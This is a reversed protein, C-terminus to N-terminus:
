QGSQELAKTQRVMDLFAARHGFPDRARTADAIQLVLDHSSLGKHRSDRLLLGWAAVSSAFLFDDSAELLTRGDDHVPYEFLRSADADPQKYRIRLTMMEGSTSSPNLERPSQYKLAEDINAASDAGVPVIEYLATVTQGAGIEGADKTDDHFDQDAMVRNEYGILRYREVVAPNFEVQLKVDKAVPVLTGALQESLVKRAEPVSDIYAYTGNGSGTIKELLDDNLNGVGYGLVTLFVGEDRRKEVMEVLAATSTVGVNFDGDTCLIVRNIGGPLFNEKAVNYALTIGAGGNTSGGAQLRGIADRLATKDACSTSPLVLGESGAYVVMAARDRADLGDAILELSEQVLPLDDRMSGSVDVLFVLNCAPRQEAAVTRAKLGVRALRHADEWPCDAVEVTVSFPVEGDPEPYDYDFYNLLEEIRVVGAPPKNGAQLYRRVNSYSATDVDISFTSLPRHWPSLFENEIIRDYRERSIPPPSPQALSFNSGDLETFVFKVAGTNGPDTAVYDALNFASVFRYVNQDKPGTYYDFEQAGIPAFSSEAHRDAIIVTPLRGLSPGPAKTRSPALNSQTRASTTAPPPSAWRELSAAERETRPPVHPHLTNPQEPAVAVRSVTRGCSMTLSMTGAAGLALLMNRNM